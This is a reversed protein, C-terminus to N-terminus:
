AGVARLQFLVALFLLQASFFGLQFVIIALYFYLFVLSFFFNHSFISIREETQEKKKIVIISLVIDAAM